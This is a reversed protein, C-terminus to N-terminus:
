RVVAVKTTVRHGDPFIIEAAYFGFSLKLPLDICYPETPNGTELREELILRGSVDWLRLMRPQTPSQFCLESTVPNPSINVWYKDGLDDPIPHISTLTGNSYVKLLFGHAQGDGFINDSYGVIIIDNNQDIEMDWIEFLIDNQYTFEWLKEYTSSSFKAVRIANPNPPNYSNIGSIVYNGDLDVRMESAYTMGLPPNSLPIAEIVHISDGQLDITAFAANYPWNFPEKAYCFMTSGVPELCNFMGLSSTHTISNFEYVITIGVIEKVVNFNEDVLISRDGFTKLFYRSLSEVWQFELVPGEHYNGVLKEFKKFEYNEDLGIYCIYAVDQVSVKTGYGFGEWVSKHTNYKMRITSVRVDAETQITDILRIDQLTTDLSFSIFFRKGDRMASGIYVYRSTDDFIYSSSEITYGDLYDLKRKHIIQGKTDTVLATYGAVAGETLAIKNDPLILMQTIVSFNPDNQTYGVLITDSQSLAKKSSFCFLVICSFLVIKKM